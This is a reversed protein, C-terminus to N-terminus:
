NEHVGTSGTGFDDGFMQRMRDSNPPRNMKPPPASVTRRTRVPSSHNLARNLADACINWVVYELSNAEQRNRREEAFSAFARALEQVEAVFEPDEPAFVTMLQEARGAIVRFAPADFSVTHEVIMDPKDDGSSWRERAADPKGALVMVRTAEGGALEHIVSLAYALDNANVSMHM